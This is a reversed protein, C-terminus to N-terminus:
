RYNDPNSFFSVLEVATGVILVLVVVGIIKLALMLQEKGM